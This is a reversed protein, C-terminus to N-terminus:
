ITVKLMKMDSSSFVVIQISMVKPTGQCILVNGTDDKGTYLRLKNNERFPIGEKFTAWQRGTTNLTQIIPPVAGDKPKIAEKM